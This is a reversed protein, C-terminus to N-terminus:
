RLTPGGYVRAFEDMTVKRRRPSQWHRVHCMTTNCRYNVVATMVTPALPKFHSLVNYKVVGKALYTWDSGM